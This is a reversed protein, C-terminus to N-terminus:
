QEIYLSFEVRRNLRRGSATANDAIPKEEGYGKFEVREPSIGKSIIYQYCAEAREESLVKNTEADGVNDTHGSISLRYGSYRVIIAVIQDLIEKSEEKLQAQGTEFQVARTAFELVEKEEKKLEPCGKKAATGIREPCADVGDHLGDGDTDPCGNTQGAKDPCMDKADAFGDKDRDPCGQSAAEGAQEPCQDENDAIGDGDQDGYPCGNYEAKGAVKPCEDTEDDIGDGDEDPCGRASASGKEEPCADEEDVIGDKDTDPCGDFEETGAVEPCEDQYDALGDEDTDPCGRFRKEGPKKPCQDELDAVGDMDQDPCGQTAASGAQEPCQDLADAVGDEDADMKGFRHLYGVGLQLNNRDTEQSLRYEGQINVFSNGGVRINVGAGVPFQTNTGLEDEWTFGGGGMLYPTLLTSDGQYYQFQLLGDLSFFTRNNIDEQVNMVGVKAPLAFNLWPMLNRIYALELGNTIDLGEIGNAQGYDVFLLKASFSNRARQEQANLGVALLTCAFLLTILKRM